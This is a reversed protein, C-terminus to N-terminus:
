KGFYDKFIDTEENNTENINHQDYFKKLEALKPKFKWKKISNSIEDMLEDLDDTIYFPDKAIILKGYKKYLYYDDDIKIYHVGIPVVPKRQQKRKRTTGM